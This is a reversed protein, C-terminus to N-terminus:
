EFIKDYVIYINIGRTGLLIKDNPSIYKKSLFGHISIKYGNDIFLQLFNTPETGHDKLLHPTFEMFIFPVHIKKIIEIGGEFAKGESGEIDIKIM